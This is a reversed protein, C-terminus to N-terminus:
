YKRIDCSVPTCEVPEKFNVLKKWGTSLEHYEKWHNKWKGIIVNKDQHKPDWIEPFKKQLFEVVKKATGDPDDDGKRYVRCLIAKFQIQGYVPDKIIDDIVTNISEYPHFPQYRDFGFNAWIGDEPVMETVWAPGEVWGRDNEVIVMDGDEIGMVAATAPNIEINRDPELEDNWPWWHGGEHFSQAIRTTNLILPFKKAREFNGLPSESGEVQTPVKYWGIKELPESALEIKGSPTPFRKDSEPYNEGEKYMIWKGRLVAEDDQFVAEEKSFVPWMLGGKPNKEPNLVDYKIGRTFTEQDNFFDTMHIENVRGKDPGNEYYGWPNFEVKNFHGIGADKLRKAIGDFVDIDARHEHQYPIVKNHWQILRNNGHHCVSDTEVSIAIPFAVHSFMYTHNPYISLHVNIMNRKMAEEMKWSNPFQPLHDGNWIIGKVPYPKEYMMANIICPVSSDGWSILKDTIQPRTPLPLDHLDNGYNLPPRCNHLWNWGGGKVGISGTLALLAAISRNVNNSNYIQATGLNGTVSAPRAAGFRRAAEIITEKPVYTLKEAREPTWQTCEKAYEEFGTVWKDVFEKDYLKEQIIINGMALFLIADSGSRIRMGIDCKALTANFRPDVGILFAGNDRADLLHTMTITEQAAMNTGVLLICKSNKWDQSPNMLRGLGKAGVVYNMSVGPSECCIPGQGYVNPTGFIKGFRAAGEKNGFSSRGTRFIALAEPGQENYLKTLREATFDLADDWSVRKFEDTLSKRMYPYNVRLPDYWWQIQGVGKSCLGGRNQPHEADGMVDVIRGNKLFIKLGCGSECMNTCTSYRITDYDKSSEQPRHDPKIKILRNDKVRMFREKKLEEFDM